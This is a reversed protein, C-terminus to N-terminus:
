LYSHVNSYRRYDANKEFTTSKFSMDRQSRRFSRSYDSNHHTMCITTRTSSRISGGHLNHSNNRRWVRWVMDRLDARFNESMFCYILPNVFSNANALWLCGFYSLVYVLRSADTQSNAFDPFFAYIAYFTQLPLWCLSFLVVITVLMKIVKRKARLQVLDRDPDANGPSSRRWMKWAISSYTLALGFLPIFFTFLFIFVTYYRSHHPESWRESCDQNMRGDYKFQRSEVVKLQIASVLGAMVWICFIIVKNRLNRSHRDFPYWIARYRDFGIAMLTYVSVIVSTHQMAMVIPCFWPPFVWRGLMFLTYTFPISFIAMTVDSVALNILFARLDGSSRKGFTLIAIVTLNGGLSLCATLSFLVVLCVQFPTDVAELSPYDIDLIELTGNTTNEWVEPDIEEM